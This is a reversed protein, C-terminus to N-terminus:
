EGEDGDALAGGGGAEAIAPQQYEEGDDEEPGACPEAARM